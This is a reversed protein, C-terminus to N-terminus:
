RNTQRDIQRDMWGDVRWREIQLIKLFGKDCTASIDFLALQSLQFNDMGGYHLHWVSASGSMWSPPWVLASMRNPALNIYRGTDLTLKKSPPPWLRYGFQIPAMAPNGGSNDSLLLFTLRRPISVRSPSTSNGKHFSSQRPFLLNRCELIQRNMTVRICQNLRIRM